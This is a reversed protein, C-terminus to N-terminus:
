GETIVRQIQSIAAPSDWAAPGVKRAVERGQPNVLLTTPLGVVGFAMMGRLQDALYLDLHTIGIEAYFARVADFGGKDISLALVHFEAGGLRAQLRDLTPMEHRCPACWTAWINLLLTRGRFDALTLSRGAGDTISPSLMPLPKPHEAMLTRAAAPTAGLALAGGLFGRRKM